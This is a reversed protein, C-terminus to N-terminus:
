GKIPLAVPQSEGWKRAIAAIPILFVLIWLKGM